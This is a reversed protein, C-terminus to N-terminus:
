KNALTEIEVPGILGADLLEWEPKLTINTRTQRQEVPLDRDGVLRNRWSNIVEIELENRGKKLQNTVDLRFPPTWVIGQDQGNLKVNAIGVDEVRSLKLFYQAGKKLSGVKFAKKYIGSGSFFKTENGSM